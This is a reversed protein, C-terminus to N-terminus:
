KVEWFMWGESLARARERNFFSDITMPEYDNFDGAGKGTLDAPDIIGQAKIYVRGSSDKYVMVRRRLMRWLWANSSDSALLREAIVVWGNTLKTEIVSKSFCFLDEGELTRLRPDMPLSAIRLVSITRNIYYVMELHVCVFVCLLVSVSGFVFLLVRKFLRM